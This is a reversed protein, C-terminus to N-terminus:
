TKRAASARIPPPKRRNRGKRGNAPWAVIHDSLEEEPLADEDCFVRAACRSAPRTCRRRIARSWRTGGTWIRAKPSWATPAPRRCGTSSTLSEPPLRVCDHVRATRNDYDACRCAAQRGAAPLRTPSISAHRRGRGRAQGPLLPRLRRLPKGVRRSMEGLTKTKWFPEDAM